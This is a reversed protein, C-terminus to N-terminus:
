EGDRQLLVSIHEGVSCKKKDCKIFCLPSINKKRVKFVATHVWMSRLDFPFIFIRRSSDKVIDLIIFLFLDIEIGVIRSFRTRTNIKM